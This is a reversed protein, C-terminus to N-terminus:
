SNFYDSKVALVCIHNHKRDNPISYLNYNEKLKKLLVEISSIIEKSAKSHIERPIELEFCIQTALKIKRTENNLYTSLVAPVAGEIDMKIYDINVLNLREIISDLSFCDVEEFNKGHKIGGLTGEFQAEDQDDEIYYFNKKGDESWVAWPHYNLQHALEPNNKFFNKTIPTPDFSFVKYDLNTLALETLVSDYIGFCLATKEKKHEKPLDLIAYGEIFSFNWPLNETWDLILQNILKSRKDLPLNLLLFLLKAPLKLFTKFFGNRKFSTILRDLYIKYPM